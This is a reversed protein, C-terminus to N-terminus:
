FQFYLFESVRHPSMGVLAIAFLVAIPLWTWAREPAWHWGAFLRLPAEVKEYAPDFDRMFEQTNPLLFVALLGLIVLVLDNDSLGSIAFVKHASLGAGGFMGNLMVQASQFTEARFVVWAIATRRGALGHACPVFATIPSSTFGTCPVGLWLPGPRVM